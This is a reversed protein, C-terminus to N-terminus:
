LVHMRREFPGYPYEQNEFTQNPQGVGSGGVAGGVRRSVAGLQLNSTNIPMLSHYMPHTSIGAPLQTHHQQLPMLMPHTSFLSMPLGTTTMHLGSSSLGISSLNLGSSSSMMSLGSSSMTLNAGLQQMEQQQQSPLVHLVTAPSSITRSQELKAVVQTEAVPEANYSSPNQAMHMMRM